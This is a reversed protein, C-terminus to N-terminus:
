RRVALCVFVLQTVHGYHGRACQPHDQAVARLLVARRPVHHEKGRAMVGPSDAILCAGEDFKRLAVVVVGLTVTLLAEWGVRLRTKSGPTDASEAGAVAGFKGGAGPGSTPGPQQQAPRRPPM